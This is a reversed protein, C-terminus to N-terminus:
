DLCAPCIQHQGIMRVQGLKKARYGFELMVFFDNAPFNVLNGVEKFCIHYGRVKYRGFRTDVDKSEDHSQPHISKSISVLWTVIVQTATKLFLLFYVKRRSSFLHILQTAPVASM